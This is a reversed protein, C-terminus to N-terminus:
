PIRPFGGGGSPPAPPGQNGSSNLGAVVVAALLSGGVLATRTWNVVRTSVRSIATLPLGLSAYNEYAGEESDQRRYGVISDDDVRVFDFEYELGEETWIRVNKREPEAAFDSRPIERLTTCGTVLWLGALAVRMADHQKKKM